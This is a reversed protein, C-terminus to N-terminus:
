PRERAGRPGRTVHRRRPPQRGARRAHRRATDPARAVRRSGAPAPEPRGARDERAHRQPHGGAQRVEDDSRPVAVREHLQGAGIQQADSTMREVPRLAKRALWYAAPTTAALVAPGALLLLWLVRRVADEAPQLSLAVVLVMDQDGSRVSTASIRYRQGADGLPAQLVDAGGSRSAAQVSPPVLPDSGAAVGFGALVDGHVDLLQAGDSPPVSSAAADLFEEEVREAEEGDQDRLDETFSRTITESVVRAEKDIAQRLDTRLQLVLYSGLLAIMTALVLAYWLAMRVRISLSM